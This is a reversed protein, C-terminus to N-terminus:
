PDMLERLERDWGLVIRLRQFANRDEEVMGRHVLGGIKSKGTSTYQDLSIPRRLSPM